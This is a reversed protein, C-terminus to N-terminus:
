IKRGYVILEIMKKLVTNEFKKPHQRLPRYKYSLLAELLKDSFNAPIESIYDTLNRNLGVENILKYM